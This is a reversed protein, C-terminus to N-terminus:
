RRRGAWLLSWFGSRALARGVVVNRARRGIRKPNGSELAEASRTLRAARYLSSSLSRRAM